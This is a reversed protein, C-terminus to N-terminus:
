PKPEHTKWLYLHVPLPENKVIIEKVRERYKDMSLFLEMRYFVLSRRDRLEPLLDLFRNRLIIIRNKGNWVVNGLVSILQAPKLSMSSDVEDLMIKVRERNQSTVM